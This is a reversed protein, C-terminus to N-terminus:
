LAWHVWMEYFFSHFYFMLHSLSSNDSLLLNLQTVTIHYNGMRRQRTGKRLRQRRDDVYIESCMTFRCGSCILQCVRPAVALNILNSITSIILPATVRVTLRKGRWQQTGAIVLANWDAECTFPHTHACWDVDLTLSISPFTHLSCVCFQGSQVSINIFSTM